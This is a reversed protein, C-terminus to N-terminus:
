GVLDQAAACVDEAYVPADIWHQRAAASLRGYLAPDRLLREIEDAAADLDDVDVRIGNIGPQVYTAMQGVPTAVPVLGLQMGEVAAMCMGEFRSLQLFFAHRAAADARDERAILGPFTVRDAIGLRTAQAILSGKFGDDRGYAVLRADIGRGTLVAVLDVARDLGKQSNLRGWSVFRAAITGGAAPRPELRETVFSIVRPRKAPPVQRAVLAAESDAWVADALRIAVRSFLGDVLHTPRELHLFYVLRARLFIRALVLLPLTKWLSFVIVDAGSGRMERYAGHYTRLNRWSLNSWGKVHRARVEGTRNLIFLLRFRCPLAEADRASKAAVEVGGIGDEPIVHLVSVPRM